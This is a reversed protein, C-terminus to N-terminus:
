NIYEEPDIVDGYTNSNRIELHLHPGSSNGTSGSLGIVDGASVTGSWVDISSLHAYLSFKGDNHHIVVYNGYGDADFGTEEVTGSSVAHVKTGTPVAYDTGQHPLCGCDGYNGPVGFAQSIAAGPVAPVTGDSPTSSKPQNDGPEPGPKQDGPLNLETGVYILDPDGTGIADRNHRYIQGWESADGRFRQSIGSLTDGSEVVYDVEGSQRQPRPTPAQPVAQIEGTDPAGTYSGNTYAGWPTWDAGGQSIDCMAQANNNPDFMDLHGYTAGHADMNIQWLGRSDEGNPNHADTNWGSEGYAIMVALDLGESTLSPCNEAAITRVEDATLQEAVAPTAAVAPLAAGGGIVGLMKWKNRTKKAHRGM